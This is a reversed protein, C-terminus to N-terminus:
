VGVREREGGERCSARGIKMGWLHLRQLIMVRTRDDGGGAGHVSAGVVPLPAPPCSRVRKERFAAIGPCFLQFNGVEIIGATLHAGGRLAAATTSTSSARCVAPGHIRLPPRTSCGPSPPSATAAIRSLRVAPLM